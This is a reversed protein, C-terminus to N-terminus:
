IIFENAAGTGYLVGAAAGKLIEVSEINAPEIIGMRLQQVVGAVGSGHTSNSVPIGDVM